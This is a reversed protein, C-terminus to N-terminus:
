QEGPDRIHRPLLLKMAGGDQLAGRLGRQKKWARVAGISKWVRPWLSWPLVMVFPNRWLGAHTELATRLPHSITAVFRDDGAIPGPKLALRFALPVLLGVLLAPNWAFVAAWIPAKESVMAAAFLAAGCLYGNVPVLVAALLALALGPMDVLVPCDTCFRVWPLGLFLAAAFAAQTGTAGHQWALAGILGTAMVMGGFSAVRWRTESTGCVWPLGQRM